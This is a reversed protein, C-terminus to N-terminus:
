TTWCPPNQCIDLLYTFSVIYHTRTEDLSWFFVSKYQKRQFVRIRIKYSVLRVKFRPIVRGEKSWCWGDNTVVSFKTLRLCMTVWETFIKFKLLENETREGLSIIITEKEFKSVWKMTWFLLNFRVVLCFKAVYSLHLFLTKVRSLEFFGLGRSPTM